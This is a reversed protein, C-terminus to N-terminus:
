IPVASVASIDQHSSDELAFQMNYIRAFEGNRTLLEDHSGEEAVQGNILVYIRDVNRITSLRHAVVLTTRGKMLEELAEQVAKESDSDLNSTAEDLILIPPDKLLARAIAIRQREGGSLKIGDEGIPSDYGRPLNM